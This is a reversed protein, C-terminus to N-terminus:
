KSKRKKLEAKMENIMSLWKIDTHCLIDTYHVYFDKNLETKGIFDDGKMEMELEDLDDLRREKLM